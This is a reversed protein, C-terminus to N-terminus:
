SGTGDDVVVEEEPTQLPISPKAPVHGEYWDIVATVLWAGLLVLGASFAAISATNDEGKFFMWAAVVMLISSMLLLPLSKIWARTEGNM